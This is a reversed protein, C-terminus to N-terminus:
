CFMVFTWAFWILRTCTHLSLSITITSWHNITSKPKMLWQFGKSAAMLWLRHKIPKAHTPHPISKVPPSPSGGKRGSGVLRRIWSLSRVEFEGHHPFSMEGGGCICIQSWIQIRDPALNTGSQNQWKIYDSVLVELEYVQPGWWSFGDFDILLKLPLAEWVNDPSSHDPPAWTSGVWQKYVDVDGYM